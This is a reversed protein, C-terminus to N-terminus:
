IARQDVKSCVVPEITLYINTKSELCGLILNLSAACEENFWPLQGRLANEGKKTCPAFCYTSKM